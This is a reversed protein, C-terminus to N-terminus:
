CASPTFGAPYQRRERPRPPRGRPRPLDEGRRSRYGAHRLAPSGDGVCLVHCTCTDHSQFVSSSAGGCCPLGDALPVPATAPPPLSDPLQIRRLRRSVPVGKPVRGLRLCGAHTNLKLFSDHVSGSTARCTALSKPLYHPSLCWSGCQRFLQIRSMRKYLYPSPGLIRCAEAETAVAKDVLWTRGVGHWGAAMRGASAWAQPPGGARALPQGASSVPLCAAPERRRRGRVPVTAPSPAAQVAPAARPIPPSRFAVLADFFASRSRVPRRRYGCRVPVRARRQKNQSTEKCGWRFHM